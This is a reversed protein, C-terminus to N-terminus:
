GNCTALDAGVASDVQGGPRFGEPRGAPRDDGGAASRRGAAPGSGAAAGGQLGAQGRCLEQRRLQPRGPASRNGPEVRQLRRRQHHRVPRRPPAAPHRGPRLEAAASFRKRRLAPQGHHDHRRVGAREEPLQPQRLVGDAALQLVELRHRHAGHGLALLQGPLRHQPDDAPQRDFRVAARRVARDEFLRARPRRDLRPLPRARHGPRAATIAELAARCFFVFRECNDKYDHGNERYLEPRDYYQPQHVLYVPVKDGPLTSRLFTGPVTKRGIPVEFRVGTPEIPRGCNLAQRFAPMIVVPEHGLKALELPLSGCVDGLGGTKCFPVAETTAFLIKM